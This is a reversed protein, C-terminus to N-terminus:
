IYYHEAKHRELKTNKNWFTHIVRMCEKYKRGNKKDILETMKNKGDIM